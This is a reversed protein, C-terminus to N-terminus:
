NAKPATCSTKLQQMAKAFAAGMKLYGESDYHWGYDIKGYTGTDTIYAACSDSKVFDAQAKQVSKIYPMPVEPGGAQTRTIKGIVIPLEPIEFAKRFLYMIETLNKHYADAHSQGGHSDAEGQMWVIGAPLLKDEHGDGDIDKDSLASSLATLAHDFQNIGKGNKFSPSWSGYGSGESLSTGGVAYKVIAVPHESIEAMTNGFGIEPGFRLSYYNSKGDARFGFGHGPRLEAWMGIGGDPQEDLKPNGHYIMVSPHPARHEPTLDRVYGHGEMNSQGALFYVHYTKAEVVQLCSFLLALLSLKIRM